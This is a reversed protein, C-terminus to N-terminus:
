NNKSRNARQRRVGELQAPTNISVTEEWGPPADVVAARNQELFRWVARQGDDLFQRIKPALDARYFGFLPERRGDYKFTVASPKERAVVNALVEVWRPRLGIRDCSILFFYESECDRCARLIGGLPGQHPTEDAITRLHLDDFKGARDAVVTWTSFHELLPSVVAEIVTTEDDILARAKEQGLRSSQGGALIYAPRRHNDAALSM